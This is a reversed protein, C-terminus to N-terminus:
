LSELQKGQNKTMSTTELAVVNYIGKEWLRIADFYGEVIIVESQALIYKRAREFNYLYKSALKM